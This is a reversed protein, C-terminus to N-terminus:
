RAEGHLEFTPSRFSQTINTMEWGYEICPIRIFLVCFRLITGWFLAPRAPEMCNYFSSFQGLPGTLERTKIYM